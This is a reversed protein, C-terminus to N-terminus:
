IKRGFMASILRRFWSRKKAPKLHLTEVPKGNMHKHKASRHMAVASASPFNPKGCDPCVFSRSTSSSVREVRAM